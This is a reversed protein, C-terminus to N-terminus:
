SCKTSTPRPLDAFWLVHDDDWGIMSSAQCSYYPPPAPLGNFLLTHIVWLHLFLILTVPSRIRSLSLTHDSNWRGTLAKWLIPITKWTSLSPSQSAASHESSSSIRQSHTMFFFLYQCSPLVYLTLASFIPIQAAIRRQWWFGWIFWM